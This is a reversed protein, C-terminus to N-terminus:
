SRFFPIIYRISYWAVPLAFLFSDIRDLMGGHGPLYSASDKVDGSRKIMSEVLDGIQAAGGVALALLAAEGWFIGKLALVQFIEVGAVSAALGGIAGEWTKNPSIRPALKHRGFRKGVFYAGSDGAYTAVLVLFIWRRPRDQMILDDVTFFLIAHGLLCAIYFTGFFTLSMNRVARRFDGKSSFLFLTAIALFAGSFAGLVLETGIVKQSDIVRETGVSYFSILPIVSFVVFFARSRRTCEPVVIAAYEALALAAVIVVVLTLLVPSLYGIALGFLGILGAATLVKKLTPNM